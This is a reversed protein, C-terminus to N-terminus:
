AGRLGGRLDGRLGGRLSGRLGGRLGGRLSGRLGGRLCGRLGGRRRFVKLRRRLPSLDGGRLGGELPVEGFPVGGEDEAFSRKASPEPGM